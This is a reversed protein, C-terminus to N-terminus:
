RGLLRAVTLEVRGSLTAVGSLVIKGTSRQITVGNAANGRVQEIRVVGGSGFSPDPTGDQNLRIVTPGTAALVVKGDPQLAIANVGNAVTQESIGGDGFTPDLAGTALLRVTATLPTNTFANGSLLIKGDPQLALATALSKIGITVIVMGLDGFSPDLAGDPLVRIAMFQNGGELQHNILGLLSDVLAGLGPPSTEGGLLIKGDPQVAMGWSAANSGFTAAGNHGFTTDLSGDANLRALAFQEGSKLAIGGLVIKGDPEVSVATAIAEAGIPVTAIGGRGFSSDLHGDPRLRVAAFGLPGHNRGGGAIVIDGNPEITVASGGGTGGIDVTVIGDGGFSPDLRGNALMRTSVLVFKGNALQAQAATVIRGNRQVAAANAVALKGFPVAVIGRHALTPDLAGPSAAATGYFPGAVVTLAVSITAVLVIGSRRVGPTYFPSALPTDCRIL